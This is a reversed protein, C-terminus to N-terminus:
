REWVYWFLYLCGLYSTVTVDYDHKLEFYGIKLSNYALISFKALFTRFIPIEGPTQSKGVGRVWWRQRSAKVGGSPTDGIKKM